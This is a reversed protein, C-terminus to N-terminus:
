CYRKCQSFVRSSAAGKCNWNVIMMFFYIFFILPVNAVLDNGASARVDALQPAEAEDVMVYDGSKDSRDEPTIAYM